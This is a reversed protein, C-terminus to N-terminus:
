NTKQAIILHNPRRTWPASLVPCTEIDTYGIAVQTDSVRRSTLEVFSGLDRFSRLSNVCYYANSVAGHTFIVEGDGDPDNTVLYSLTFFEAPITVVEAIRMYRAGSDFVKAGANDFVQLGWPDGSTSNSPAAVFWDMTYSGGTGYVDQPRLRISSYNGNIDRAMTLASVGDVGSAGRSPNRYFFLPPNAQPAFNVTFTYSLGTAAVTTSGEAVIQLNRFGSDIQVEGSQNSISLGYSM